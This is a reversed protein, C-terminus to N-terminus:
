FLLQIVERLSATLFFCKTHYLYGQYCSYSECLHFKLWVVPQQLLDATGLEPSQPECSQINLTHDHELMSVSHILSMLWKRFFVIVKDNLYNCQIHHNWYIDTYGLFWTHPNCIQIYLDKEFVKCITIFNIRKQLTSIFM